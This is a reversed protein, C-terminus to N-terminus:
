IRESTTGTTGTTRTSTTNGLGLTSTLDEAPGDVERSCDEGNTNLLNADHRLNSKLDGGGATFDKIGMPEHQVSQHVIPAEHTTQHVPITTHLRHHEHTDREIVPQVVHHVHHSTNEHVQEGRDIIVKERPAETVSDHATNLSALMAKDEDTAVHNERIHTEPHVKEHHVESAHQTDLVPQTHHQVHHVHRDIERQREIEEVEHQQRTEHTVPTLHKHDHTASKADREDLLGDGRPQQHHHHPPEAHERIHEVTNGTRGAVGTTGSTTGSTNAVREREFSPDNEVLTGTAGTTRSSATPELAQGSGSTRSSPNTSEHKDSSFIEKVKNM